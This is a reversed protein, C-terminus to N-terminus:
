KYRKKLREIEEQPHWNWGDFVGTWYGCRTCQYIPINSMQKFPHSPTPINKMLFEDYGCHPCKTHQEMKKKEKFTLRIVKDKEEKGLILYEKFGKDSLYYGSFVCRKIFGNKFAENLKSLFKKGYEKKVYARFEDRTYVDLDSASRSIYVLVDFMSPNKTNMM